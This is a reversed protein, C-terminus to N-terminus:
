RLIIIMCLKEARIHNESMRNELIQHSEQSAASRKEATGFETPKSGARCTPCPFPQADPSAANVRYEQGLRDM